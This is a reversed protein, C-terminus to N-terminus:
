SAHDALATFALTLLYFLLGALLGTAGAYVLRKRPTPSKWRDYVYAATIGSVAGAVGNRLILSGVATTALVLLLLIWARTQSPSLTQTNRM